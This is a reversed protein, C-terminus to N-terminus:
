VENDEKRNRHITITLVVQSCNLALLALFYSCGLRLKFKSARIFYFSHLSVIKKFKKKIKKKLQGFESM